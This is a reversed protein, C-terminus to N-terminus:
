STVETTESYAWPLAARLDRRFWRDAHASTMLRKDVVRGAWAAVPAQAQLDAGLARALRNATVHWATGAELPDTDARLSWLWSRFAVDLEAYALEVARARPGDREEKGAGAAAALNAALNGLAQASKEAAQVCDVATRVLARADRHVLASRLALGDDLIDTTTASQAGYSMGITRLRLPLDAGIVGGVEAVWELVGPSVFAAAEDGQGKEAGPLLSQLGRWVAREPAHERPMYVQAVRLKKEQAKSRRWATHPELGEKNQPTVREGNCILVGTVEAGERVLRIRRSQWTYLDVPGTPARGGEVEEAPGVPPREWAPVDLSPTRRIAVSDAAILNLLLTDRLTRGEPMVGGLHGAWGTGIPYGKGSKVRKDGVAGSKIGSPDFAHCHVLWRAAEAFSLRVKGGLRTTFFPHGNPVDAILKSLESVEGTATTLGAVQLFPTQPDFLEFRARHRELYARVEEHPLQERSWLREWHDLDRPGQVAGHLVALLVRTLAFVQTPVDGVLGSLEHAHKFLDPLSLEVPRGPDALRGTLPLAPLWPRDVLNFSEVETARM